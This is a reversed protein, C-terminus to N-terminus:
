KAETPKVEVMEKIKLLNARTTGYRECILSM